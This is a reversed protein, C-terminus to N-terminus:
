THGAADFADVRYTYTTSAALGSDHFSTTTGGVGTLRAGNRYIDYGAVGVDDTSADWSLDVTSSGTANAHLNQPVTPPGTDGTSGGGVVLSVDDIDFSRSAPSAESVNVTLSDGTTKVTYAVDPFAQWATTTSVCQQASGVTSSGGAPVEKLVLCVTQ